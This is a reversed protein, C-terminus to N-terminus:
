ESGHGPRSDDSRGSTRRRSQPKKIQAITISQPDFDNRSWIIANQDSGTLQAVRKKVYVGLEFLNIRDDKSKENRTEEEAPLRAPVEGGPKRYLYKSQIGELVALTLAGHKWDPDEQALQKGLSAAFVVLGKRAGSRFVNELSIAKTVAASHCTDV